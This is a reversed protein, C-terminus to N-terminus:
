RAGAGGSGGDRSTAAPPPTIRVTLIRRPDAELVTFTYRGVRFYEGVLPIRHV